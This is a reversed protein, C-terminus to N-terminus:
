CSAGRQDFGLNRKSREPQFQGLSTVFWPLTRVACTDTRRNRHCKSEVRETTERRVHHSHWAAAHLRAATRGNLNVIEQNVPILHPIPLVLSEHLRTTVAPWFVPLL